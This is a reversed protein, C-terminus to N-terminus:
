LGMWSLMRAGSDTSPPLNGPAWTVGADSWIIAQGDTPATAALARGRLSIANHVIDTVDAEVHTHAVTSYGTLAGGSGLGAMHDHDALTAASSAGATTGSARGASSAPYDIIREQTNKAM